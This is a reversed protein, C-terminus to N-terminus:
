QTKAEPLTRWVPCRDDLATLLKSASDAWAELAEWWFRLFVAIGRAIAIFMHLITEPTKMSVGCDMNRATLEAHHNRCLTIALKAHNAKGVLHHQELLRLGKRNLKKAGTPVLQHVESIGCALCYDQPL